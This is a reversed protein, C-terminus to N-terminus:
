ESKVPERETGESRKPSPPFRHALIFRCSRDGRFNQNQKAFELSDDSPPPAQTTVSSTYVHDGKMNATGDENWVALVALDWSDDLKGYSREFTRELLNVELASERLRDLIWKNIRDGLSSSKENETTWGKALTPKVGPKLLLIPHKVYESIQDESNVEEEDQFVRRERSQFDTPEDYENILNASLCDQRMQDVDSKSIRIKELLEVVQFQSNDLWAQDEPALALGFRQRSHKEEELAGIEEELEVLQEQLLDLDGIRSLFKTVEPDYHPAEEIELVAALSPSHLTSTQQFAPTLPPEKAARFRTGRHSYFHEERRTLEFERESLLDELQNCDDELPGYEGRANRWDETLESITKQGGPSNGKRSFLEFGEKSIRQLLLDDTKSRLLQKERLIGRIEHVQSRLSWIEVRLKRIRQWENEFESDDDSNRGELNVESYLPPRDIEASSPFTPVVTESRPGDMVHAIQLPEPSPRDAIEKLYGPPPPISSPPPVPDPLDIPAPVRPSMEFDFLHESPGEYAHSTISYGDSPAASDNVINSAVPLEHSWLMPTGAIDSVSRPIINRLSASAM